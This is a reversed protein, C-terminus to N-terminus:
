DTTDRAPSAEGRVRAPTSALADLLDCFRKGSRRLGRRVRRLERGLFRARAFIADLEELAQEYSADYMRAEIARMEREVQPLLVPQTYGEAGQGSDNM